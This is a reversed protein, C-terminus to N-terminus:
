ERLDEWIAYPTTCSLVSNALDPELSNLIWSLVMDNCRQLLAHEDPNIITSPEKIKGTIFGTKNKASLSIPMARCWSNYNDSTLKKSVLLLGPHNSHHLFLPNTSEDVSSSSGSNSPHSLVEDELAM